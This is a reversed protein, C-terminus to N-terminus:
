RALAPASWSGSEPSRRIGAYRPRCTSKAARPRRAAPRWIALRASDRAGMAFAARNQSPAIFHVFHIFVAGRCSAQVRCQEDPQQRNRGPQGVPDKAHHRERGALLENLSAWWRCHVGVLTYARHRRQGALTLLIEHPAAKAVTEFLATRVTHARVQMTNETPTRGTGRPEVIRRRDHLSALITQDPIIGFYGLQDAVGRLEEIALM